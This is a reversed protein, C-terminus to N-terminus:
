KSANHYHDDLLGHDVGYIRVDIDSMVTERTDMYDEFPQDPDVERLYPDGNESEPVVIEYDWNSFSPGCKLTLVGMRDTIEQPQGVIEIVGRDDGVHLEIGGDIEAMIPLRERLDAEIDYEEPLWDPEDTTTDTNKTSM